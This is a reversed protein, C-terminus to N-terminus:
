RLGAALEGDVDPASRYAATEEAEVRRAQEQEAPAVGARVPETGPGARHLYPEGGVAGAGPDVELVAVQRRGLLGPMDGAPRVVQGPQGRGGDALGARVGPHALRHRSSPGHGTLYLFPSSSPTLTASVGAPGRTTM